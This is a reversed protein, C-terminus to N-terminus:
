EKTLKFYAQKYSCKNDRMYKKIKKDLSMGELSYKHGDIELKMTDEGEIDDIDVDNIGFEKKLKNIKEFIRCGLEFQTESVESVGENTIKTYTHSHKENDLTYLFTKLDDGAEINSSNVFRNVEVKKTAKNKQIAEERQFKLKDDLLKIQEKLEKVNGLKALDGISQSYSQLKFSLAEIQDEILEYNM